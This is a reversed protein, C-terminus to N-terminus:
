AKGSSAPSSTLVRTDSCCCGDIIPAFYRRRSALGTRECAVASKPWRGPAVRKSGGRLGKSWGGSINPGHRMLASATQVVDAGALLYKIVEEPGAVGRGGALSLTTEGALIAIWMLPLRIEQATSLDPSPRFNLTDLDIDPELLRNFLVIGSAGADALAAALHAPATFYPFLKVAVPIGVAACVERM